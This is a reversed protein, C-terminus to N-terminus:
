EALEATRAGRTRAVANVGCELLPHFPARFWSVDDRGFVGFIISRFSYLHSARETGIWLDRSVLTGAVRVIVRIKDTRDRLSMRRWLDDKIPIPDFIPRAVAFSILCVPM